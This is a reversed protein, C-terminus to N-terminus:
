HISEHLTTVGSAPGHLSLPTEKQRYRRQFAQRIYLIGNAEGNATRTTPLTRNTQCVGYAFDVSPIHRSHRHLRRHRRCTMQFSIMLTM